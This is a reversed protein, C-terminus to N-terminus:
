QKALGPATHVSLAEEPYATKTAGFGDAAPELRRTQGDWSDRQLDM